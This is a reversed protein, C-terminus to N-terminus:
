AMGSEASKNTDTRSTRPLIERNVVCIVGPAAIRTMKVRNKGTKPFCHRKSAKESRFRFWGSGSVDFGRGKLTFDMTQELPEHNFEKLKPEWAYRAYLISFFLAFLLLIGANPM